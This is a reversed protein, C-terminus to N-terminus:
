AEGERGHHDRVDAGRGALHRKVEILSIPRGFSEVGVDLRLGAGTDKNTLALNGHCHGSLSISDKSQGNFSMIPYHSLVVFQKNVWAEAYAPLFVLTKVRAWLDVELPYVEAGSDAIDPYQNRLAKLYVQKQGSPHNGWLCYLTGFTLRRTLEMFRAGEPDNLVMDGLHFVVGDPPVIENWRQILTEDHQQVSTFGRPGYIFDRNHGIHLDSIFFVKHDPASIRLPKLM